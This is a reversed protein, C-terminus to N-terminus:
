VLDSLSDQVVEMGGCESLDEMGTGMGMGMMRAVAPRAGSASSRGCLRLSFFIITTTGPGQDRTGLGQGM